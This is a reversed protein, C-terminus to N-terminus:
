AEPPPYHGDPHYQDPNREKFPIADGCIFGPVWTLETKNKLGLAVFDPHEVVEEQMMIDPNGSLTKIKKLFSSVSPKNESLHHGSVTMDEIGEPFDSGVWLIHFSMLLWFLRSFIRRTQIM